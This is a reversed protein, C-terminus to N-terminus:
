AAKRANIEDFRAPSLDGLAAHLRRANDVEAIFRPLQATLDQFTADGNLPVEEHKLTKMFSEAKANASPTGRRGMSGRLGHAALRKRYPASADQAGRDSHPV